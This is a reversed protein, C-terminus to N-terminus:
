AQSFFGSLLRAIRNRQRNSGVGIIKLVKSIEAETLVAARAM